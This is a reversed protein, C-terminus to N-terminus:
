ANAVEMARRAVEHAARRHGRAGARSAMEDREDDHTMLTFVADVIEDSADQTILLAGGQAVLDAANQAQYGKGAPLPVVIAPTATEEIEAVTLAGARSVVLDCAAYFRAMDDEFPLVTWDDVGAAHNAVAPFNAEGTLQLLHFPRPDRKAIALGIENLAEAGLSGGVIGLVKSEVPIGYHVKAPTGQKARDFNDFSSRLPNGVVVGTKLRTKAQDFGVLVLDARGAVMRNAMGPVANAEHVIVPIGCRRAAQAAPGSVYGGFVIMASLESSRIEEAIRKAANRVKIPLKFNATTITRRFGHIDVGVFRYGAAPVTTAEMRDGGFFVIGDREVGNSVLADAVALAPYVHGGSGAAALGFRMM